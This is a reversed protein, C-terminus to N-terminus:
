APQWALNKDILSEAKKFDTGVQKEKGNIVVAPYKRVGYRASKLLGEISAADIVKFVVRGGYREVANLVWDSLDRYEAMMEPPMSTELADAHFKKVGEVEAEQFVVECHQCHFYQTPAYAIVEVTLPKM